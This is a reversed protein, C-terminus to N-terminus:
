FVWWEAPFDWALFIFWWLHISICTNTLFEIALPSNAQLFVVYLGSRHLVYGMLPQGKLVLGHIWAFRYVLNVKKNFFHLQLWHHIFVLFTSKNTHMTFCKATWENALYCSAFMGYSFSKTPGFAMFGGHYIVIIVFFSLLIGWSKGRCHWSWQLFEGWQSIDSLGRWSITAFSTQCVCCGWSSHQM